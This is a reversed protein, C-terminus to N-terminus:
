DFKGVAFGSNYDIVAWATKTAADVGYSGLEYEPAWPGDYFKKAPMGYNLDVANVWKGQNDESAIGFSDNQPVEGDYTMSLVYLDTQNALDQGTRDLDAMGWLTLVDSIPSFAPTKGEWREKYWGSWDRKDTWGTNVAKTLPRKTDDKVTSDNVGGLIRATTAQFSDVIGAYSVGQPVLFEKGNLGHGWIEKRIFEFTPTVRSPFGSGPYNGDSKWEGHTDAYYEVTVRPGDVTFIYYGVTYLEQSLSTERTKQGYWRENDLAAPTYFKSSNSACILEKIRSAGDPSAILSRQHLHDHGSIFYGVGNEMLSACFANQMEPNANTYGNFITDQHNEGMLNQHSFVFVHEAGRSAKDIRSDIWEQQAAVSHGYPYGAEDTRASPTAWDDIIVFRVRGGEEGYDFSYSMGEIDGLTAPSNFNVTGFTNVLGRTQPFAARFADIGYNNYGPNEPARDAYTEHNGRMPFFGIGSDYLAQAATARTQIDANRGWETLDGVQIVFSVGHQIFRENLQRIISVAVGNPNASEPDMPNGNTWQTDAMIGFKWIAPSYPPPFGGGNGGNGGNGGGNGPPNNGGGNPKDSGCNVMAVSALGAFGVGGIKIFRRRDM